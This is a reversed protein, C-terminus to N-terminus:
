QGAEWSAQIADAVEKASKGNTYDVMGTWFSGAGVWGPMLDSGDFRFTTAQQLIEHLGRFTDSAYKSTDVFKHPTLFGGKEM